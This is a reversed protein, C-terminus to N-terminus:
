TNVLMSQRPNLKQAPLVFGGGNSLFEGCPKLRAPLLVASPKRQQAELECKQQCQCEHSDLVFAAVQFM